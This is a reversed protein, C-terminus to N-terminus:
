CNANEPVKKRLFQQLKGSKMLRIIDKRNTLYIFALYSVLIGIKYLLNMWSFTTLYQTYSFYLGIGMFLLSPIIIKLMDTVRYGIDDYMKSMIIVISIVVIKAVLFAVAAGYMGYFKVLVSALIIDAMSGTITSIFIKNAAQKYYFLINVYFYYISKVSFAVVLIPIVTWAMYYRENTMLMIVEQSFLGIGMYVLSYIILLLKSLSVADKKASDGGQKM